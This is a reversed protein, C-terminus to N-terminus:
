STTKQLVNLAQIVRSNMEQCTELASVRCEEDLFAPAYIQFQCLSPELKIRVWIVCTPSLFCGPFFTNSFSLCAQFQRLSPKELPEATCSPHTQEPLNSHSHMPSIYVGSAWPWPIVPGSCDDPPIRRSPLDPCQSLYFGPSIPSRQRDM